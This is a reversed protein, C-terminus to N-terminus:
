GNEMMRKSESVFWFARCRRIFKGNWFFRRLRDECGEWTATDAPFRRRLDRMLTQGQPLLTDNAARWSDVLNFWVWLLVSEESEIEAVADKGSSPHRSTSAQTPTSLSTRRVRRPADTTLKMRSGNYVATVARMPSFTHLCYLLLALVIMKELNPVMVEEAVGDEALRTHVEDPAGLCTCAEWFDQFRRPKTRFVDSPTVITGHRMQETHAEATRSLVELVDLALRRQHALAQFGLPLSAVKQGLPSSSSALIQVPPYVPQYAPRAEPFISSGTNLAWFSEWQMLTCRALGDHGHLSQLGGRAAVLSAITRKHIEHSPLDNIARTVVALFLVTMITMDDVLTENNSRNKAAPEPSDEELEDDRRQHGNDPAIDVSVNNGDKWEERPRRWRRRQTEKERKRQEEEEQERMERQVRGLRRRLRVMATGIHRLVNESPGPADNPRRRLHDIIAQVSAVGTYLFDPHTLLEFYYSTYVNTVNFIKYIPAHNPAMIQAHYDIVANVSPSHAHRRPICDFPDARTGLLDHPIFAPTTPTTPNNINTAWPRMHATTQAHPNIQYVVNHRPPTTTTTQPLILATSAASSSSSSLRDLTSSSNYNFNVEEVDETSPNDEGDGESWIGAWTSDPPTLAQNSSPHAFANTSWPQILSTNTPTNSNREQPSQPPTHLGHQPQVQCFSLAPDSSSGGSAEVEWSPGPGMNIADSRAIFQSQRRGGGVGAHDSGQEELTQPREPQPPPWPQPHSLPAALRPAHHHNQYSVTAAHSRAKARELEKDRKSSGVPLEQVFHLRPM